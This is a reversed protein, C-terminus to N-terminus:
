LLWTLRLEDVVKQDILRPMEHVQRAVAICTPAELLPLLKALQDILVYRLAFSQDVEEDEHIDAM